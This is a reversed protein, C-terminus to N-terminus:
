KAPLLARLADPVPCPAGSGRDTWVMIAQGDAYKVGAAEAAHIEYYTPFSTRGAPGGYVNVRLTGPYPIPRVYTCSTQVVVPGQNERTTQLGSTELWEIRAQEFYTFYTANNVHGNADMDGWRVPIDLAALLTRPGDPPTRRKTDNM